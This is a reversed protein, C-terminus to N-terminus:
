LANSLSSRHPANSSSTAWPAKWDIPNLGIYLVKLIMEDDTEVTPVAYDEEIAYRQKVERLLLVRQKRPAEGLNGDIYERQFKSDEKEQVEPTLIIVKEDETTKRRKAKKMEVEPSPSRLGNISNGWHHRKTKRQKALAFTPNAVLSMKLLFIFQSYNASNHPPLYQENAVWQSIAPSLSSLLLLYLFHILTSTPNSLL